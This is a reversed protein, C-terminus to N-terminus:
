MRELVDYHPADHLSGNSNVSGSTEREKKSRFPKEAQYRTAEFTLEDRSAYDYIGSSPPSNPLPKDYISHIREGGVDQLPIEIKGMEGENNGTSSPIYDSPQDYIDAQEEESPQIVRPVKYQKPTAVKNVPKPKLEPKPAIYPNSKPSAGSAPHLKPSGSNKSPDVSVYLKNQRVKVNELPQEYIDSEVRAKQSKTCEYLENRAITVAPYAVSTCQEYVPNDESKNEIGINNLQFSVSSNQHEIRSHLHQTSLSEKLKRKRRRHLACYVLVVALAIVLLIIIPLTIALYLRYEHSSKTTITSRYRTQLVLFIKEVTTANKNEDNYCLITLNFKINALLPAATLNWKLFHNRAVKKISLLDKLNETVITTNEDTKKAKSEDWEIYCAASTKNLTLPVPINKLCTNRTCNRGLDVIGINNRRHNEREELFNVDKVRLRFLYEKFNSNNMLCEITLKLTMGKLRSYPNSKWKFYLGDEQNEVMFPEIDQSFGEEWLITCNSLNSTPTTSSLKKSCINPCEAVLDIESIENNEEDLYLFGEKNRASCVSQNNTPFITWSNGRIAIEMISKALLNPMSRLYRVAHTINPYNSFSLGLLHVSQRAECLWEQELKLSNCQTTTMPLYNGSRKRTGLCTSTQANMLLNGPTWLWVQRLNNSDCDMPRIGNNSALLACKSPTPNYILFKKSFGAANFLNNVSLCLAGYRKKIYFIRETGNFCFCNECRTTDAQQCEHGLYRCKCDIDGAAMKRCDKLVYRKQDEANRAIEFMTTKMIIQSDSLKVSLAFFAILWALLKEKSIKSNGVCSSFNQTKM